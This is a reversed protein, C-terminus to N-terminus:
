NANSSITIDTATGNQINWRLPQNFYPHRASSPRPYPNDPNSKFIEVFMFRFIKNNPLATRDAKNQM